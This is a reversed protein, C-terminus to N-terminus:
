EELCLEGKKKPSKSIISKMVRRYVRESLDVEQVYIGPSILQGRKNVGVVNEIWDLKGSGHCKSCPGEGGCKNCIVEGQELEIKKTLM